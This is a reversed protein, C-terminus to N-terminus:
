ANLDTGEHMTLVTIQGGKHPEPGGVFLSVHMGLAQAMGSLIPGAFGALRDITAQRDAPFTSPPMTLTDNWEQLAAKGEEQALKTYEDQVSQPQQLFTSRTFQDCYATKSNKSLLDKEQQWRAKFTGKVIANFHDKSWRQHPKLARPKAKLVGSLQALLHCWPDDEASRKRDPKPTKKSRYDMWTRIAKRMSEVKHKEQEKTISSLHEPPTPSLNYPESPEQSQGGSIATKYGALEANLFDSHQGQAWNKKLKKVYAKPDLSTASPRWINKSTHSQRSDSCFFM